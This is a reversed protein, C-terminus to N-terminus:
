GALGSAAMFKVMLRGGSTTVADRSDLAVCYVDTTAGSEDLTHAGDTFTFDLLAGVLAQSTASAKYKCVYVSDLNILEIETVSNTTGTADRRAIGDVAGATAVIVTGSSFKVLDGAKFTQTGAGEVAPVVQPSPGSQWSVSAM